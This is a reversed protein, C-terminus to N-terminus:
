YTTTRIQLLASKPLRGWHDPCIHAFTPPTRAKNNTTTSTLNAAALPYTTTTLWETNAIWLLPDVDGTSDLAEAESSSTKTYIPWASALLVHFNDLQTWNVSIQRGLQTCHIKPQLLPDLTFCTIHLSPIRFSEDHPNPHRLSLTSTILTLLLPRITTIAVLYPTRNTKQYGIQTEEQQDDCTGNREYWLM